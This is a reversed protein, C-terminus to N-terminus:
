KIVVAKAKSKDIPIRIMRLNDGAWQKFPCHYIDRGFFPEKSIPILPQRQGLIDEDMVRRSNLSDMPVIGKPEQEFLVAARPLQQGAEATSWESTVPQCTRRNFYVVAAVCRCM